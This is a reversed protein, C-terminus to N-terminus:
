FVKVKVLSHVQMFCYVNIGLHLDTSPILESFLLLEGKWRRGTKDLDLM